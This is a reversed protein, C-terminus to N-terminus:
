KLHFIINKTHIDVFDYLKLESIDSQKLITPLATCALCISDVNPHSKIISLLIKKSSQKFIGKNLENKIIYEIKQMERNSPLTFNVGSKKFYQHFKDNEMIYKTGMLLVNKKKDQNIKQLISERGDIIPLPSKEKLFDIALHMSVASIVCYDAGAKQLSNITKLFYNSLNAIKNDSLFKWCKNFDVSYIIIEPYEHFKELSSEILQSYYLKTSESSIGGIIGIKKM